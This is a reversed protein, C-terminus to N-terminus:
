QKIGREVKSLTSYIFFMAVGCVIYLDALNIYTINLINIFDIVYGYWVRSIAQSIIGSVIFVITIKQSVPKDQFFNKALFWIFIIVLLLYVWKNLNVLGLIFLSNTQYLIGSGLVYFRSFQDIVILILFLLVVRFKQTLM